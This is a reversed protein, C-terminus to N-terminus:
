GGTSIKKRLTYEKDPRSASFMGFVCLLRRKLRFALPLWRYAGSIKLRFELPWDLPSVDIRGTAYEGPRSFALEPLITFAREYGAEKAMELLRRDFAGHPFAILKVTNGTIEELTLKSGELERRADEESLSLLNRHTIGHSGISVLDRNLSRIQEPTVIVEFYDKSRRDDIWGQSQGLYATPIFLASQINRLALEPLANEVVSVFGDDFTVAVHCSGAGLKNKVDVPVTKARETLVDMQRAFRRRGDRTVGHYCLVVCRPPLPRGTLTSLGKILWEVTWFCISVALIFLRKIM